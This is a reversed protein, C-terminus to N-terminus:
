EEPFNRKSVAIVEPIKEVSTKISFINPCANEFWEEGPSWHCMMWLYLDIACLKEGLFYPAAAERDMYEFLMKRHIETGQRLLEMAKPDHDVWRQPVDGYTYTPYVAGNLFMLWRLFNIYSDDESSLILGVEPKQSHIWHIIANTETLIEGSEFELVPVQGLINLSKLSKSEWGVDAWTLEVHEIELKALAFAAECILAGSGAVGYLKPNSM